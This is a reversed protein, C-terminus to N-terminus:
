YNYINYQPYRDQMNILLQDDDECLVPKRHYCAIDHWRIGDDYVDNLIALCSEVTENIDFEANDPQPDGFHGTHSWPHYSWTSQNTDPIEKRNGSWFWGKVNLPKLDHRDECGKFDCIRGSTWLYDIKGSYDTCGPCLCEFLQNKPGCFGYENCCPYDSLSPCKPVTGDRFPFYPGCRGDVRWTPGVHDYVDHNYMFNLIMNNEEETEIAVADMCHNRCLNRAALWDFKTEKLEPIDVSYFYNHQEGYRNPPWQWHKPRNLCKLPDEPDYLRNESVELGNTKPITICCLLSMFIQWSIMRFAL